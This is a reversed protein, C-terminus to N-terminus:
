RGRWASRKCRMSANISCNPRAGKAWWFGSVSEPPNLRRKLLGDLRKTLAKAEHVSVTNFYAAVATTDEDTIPFSPMRIGDFIKPRMQVVNKFFNFLWNHQIKNGEGRLSPPAHEATQTGTENM